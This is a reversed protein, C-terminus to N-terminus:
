SVIDVLYGNNEFCKGGGSFPTQNFYWGTGVGLFPQIDFTHRFRGWFPRYRSTASYTYDGM